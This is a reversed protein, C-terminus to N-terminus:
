PTPCYYTFDSVKTKPPLRKGLCSGNMSCSTLGTKENTLIQIGNKSDSCRFGKKKQTGPHTHRVFLQRWLFSACTICYRRRLFFPFIWNPASEKKGCEEYFFIFLYFIFYIFVYMGNLIPAKTNFNNSFYSEKSM